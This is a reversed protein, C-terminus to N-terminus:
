GNTPTKKKHSRKPKPGPSFREDLGAYMEDLPAPEKLAAKNAAVWAEFKRVAYRRMLRRWYLIAYFTLAVISLVFLTTM